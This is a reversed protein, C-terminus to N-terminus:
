TQEENKDTTEFFAPHESTFLVARIKQLIAVEGAAIINEHLQLCTDPNL